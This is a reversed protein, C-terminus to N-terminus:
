VFASMLFPVDMRRVGSSRNRPKMRPTAFGRQAIHNMHLSLRQHETTKGHTTSARDATSLVLTPPHPPISSLAPFTSDM